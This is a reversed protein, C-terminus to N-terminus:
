LKARGVIDPIYMWHVQEAWTEAREILELILSNKAYTYGVRDQAWTAAAEVKMSEYRRAEDGNSRLYDRFLLHERAFEDGLECVHIHLTRPFPQTQTFFRHIDDRTTLAVGLSEIPDRYSSEDSLDNVEILVDLIPKAAMGPISTSGIHSISASPLAQTLAASVEGFRKPWDPSYPVVEVAGDHRPSAVQEFNPWMVFQSLDTLTHRIELPLESSGVGRVRAVEDYLDILGVQRGIEARRKKWLAFAEQDEPTLSMSSFRLEAMPRRRPSRTVLPRYRLRTFESEIIQGMSVSVKKFVSM